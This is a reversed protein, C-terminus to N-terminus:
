LGRGPSPCPAPGLSRVSPRHLGARRRPTRRPPRGPPLAGPVVM